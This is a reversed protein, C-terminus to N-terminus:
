AVQRADRVGPRHSRHNERHAHVLQIGLQRRRGHSRLALKRRLEPRQSHAAGYEVDFHVPRRVFYQRYRAHARRPDKKAVSVDGAWFYSQVADPADVLLVRRTTVDTPKPVSPMPQGAKRWNAFARSLLSKLQASKFDGAVAIIVRDAGVNDQYYRQVDSHKIAALSAESGSVPRGYPHNGFLSAAGYISTLSARDSDKAARIFEIYRDRLSEFQAQKWARGSCCM